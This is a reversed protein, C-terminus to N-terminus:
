VSQEVHLVGDIAAIEYSEILCDSDFKRVAQIFKPLEFYLCRTTMVGQEADNYTHNKSYSIDHPFNISKLYNVISV